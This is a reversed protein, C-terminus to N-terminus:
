LVDRYKRELTSQGYGVWVPWCVSENVRIELHFRFCGKRASTRQRNLRRRHRHHHRHNQHRFLVVAIIVINFVIGIVSVAFVNHNSTVSLSFLAEAESAMRADAMEALISPPESDAITIHALSSTEAMFSKDALNNAHAM